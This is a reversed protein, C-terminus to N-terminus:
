RRESESTFGVTLTYARPAFYPALRRDNVVAGFVNGIGMRVDLVHVLKFHLRLDGLVIAHRALTNGSGLVTLGFRASADDRSYGLAFRSKLSPTGDDLLPLGLDTTASRGFRRVREFRLTATGDLHGPAAPREYGIEVGLERAQTAEGFRSFIARKDISASLRAGTTAAEEVSLRYGFSTEPVVLPARADSTAYASGTSFRLTTRADSRVAYAVFPDDRARLGTGRAHADGIVLRANPSLRVDARATLTTFSRNRESTTAFLDREDRRDYGFAVRNERFMVAYTAQTGRIRSDDEVATAHLPVDAISRDEAVHSASAYSRLDLSTSGFGAHLDVAVIPAHTRVTSTGRALTARTDYRALALTISPAPAYRLKFTQSRRAAGSALDALVAFKGFTQNTRAVTFAGISSDYGFTGRINSAAAVAPTRLNVIGGITDRLSLTTLIPGRVIEVSELVLGDLARLGAFSAAGGAIPIGDLEVRTERATSGAVAPAVGSAAVGAVVNADVSEEIAHAVMGDSPETVTVVDVASAADRLNTFSTPSLRVNLVVIGARTGGLTLRTAYPEFGARSVHMAYTGLPLADLTVVGSGLTIAERAVPGDVVVRAGVIARNDVDRIVAGIAGPGIAESARVPAGIALAIGCGFM